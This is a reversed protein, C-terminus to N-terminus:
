TVPILGLWNHLLFKVPDYLSTLRSLVTMGFFVGFCAMMGLRGIRGVWNLPFRDVQKFTFIFYFIGCIVIIATIWTNFTTIPDATGFLPLITANIQNLIQAYIGASVNLGVGVGLLIGLPYRSVWRYGETLRLFILLGLIMPIVLTFQGVQIKQVGKTIINSMNTVFLHGTGVGIITSEAVYWLHTEKFAYSIM